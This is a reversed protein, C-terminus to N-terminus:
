KAHYVNCCLEMVQCVVFGRLWRHMSVEIDPEECSFVVKGSCVIEVDNVAPRSLSSLRADPRVHGCRKCFRWSGWRIWHVLPEAVATVWGRREPLKGVSAAVFRRGTIFEQWLRMQQARAGHVGGPAVTEAQIWRRFLLEKGQMGPHKSLFAHCLRKHQVGLSVKSFQARLDRLEQGYVILEASM